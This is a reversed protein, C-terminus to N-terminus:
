PGLIIMDYPVHDPSVIKAGRSTVDHDPHCSKPGGWIIFIGSYRTKTSEYFVYKGYKGYGSPRSEGICLIGMIGPIDHEHTLIPFMCFLTNQETKPGELDHCRSMIKPRRNWTESWSIMVHSRTNRIVLHQLYQFVHFLPFGLYVYKTRMHM